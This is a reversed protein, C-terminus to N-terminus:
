RIEIQTGWSISSSRSRSISDTPTLSGTPSGISIISSNDSYSSGGTTNRLNETYILLEKLSELPAAVDAVTGQDSKISIDAGGMEILLKVLKVYGMRAALHLPTEGNNNQINTNAGHKILLAVAAEHNEYCLCHLVTEGINNQYNM